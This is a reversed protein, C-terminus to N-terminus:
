QVEPAAAADESVDRSWEVAMPVSDLAHLVSRVVDAVLDAEEATDCERIIPCHWGICVRVVYKKAM